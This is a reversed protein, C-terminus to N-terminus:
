YMVDLCFLIRAYMNLLLESDYVVDGSKNLIQICVFSARVCLICENCEDFQYVLRIRTKM